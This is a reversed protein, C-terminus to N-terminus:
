LAHAQSQTMWLLAFLLLAASVACAVTRVSNWFTWRPVYTKTWYDRTTDASLDMGALAENMPVNFFVTVGFCGVLYVLGSVTILSGAPGAMGLAGYATVVVSMAAMGLFHAMFVWRFVERNIVQMAEVGGHGGTIALSR